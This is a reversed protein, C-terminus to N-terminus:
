IALDIQLYCINYLNKEIQIGILILFYIAIDETQIYIYQTVLDALFCNKNQILIMSVENKLIAIIVHM